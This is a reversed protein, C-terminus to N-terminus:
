PSRVHWRYTLNCCVSAYLGSRNLEALSLGMCPLILGAPPMGQVSAQLSNANGRSSETEASHTQQQAQQLQQQQAQQLEQLAAGPGQLFLGGTVFSGWLQLRWKSAIICDPTVRQSVHM